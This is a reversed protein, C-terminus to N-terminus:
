KEVIVDSKGLFHMFDAESCSLQSDDFEIQLANRVFKMRIGHLTYTTNIKRRRNWQDNM